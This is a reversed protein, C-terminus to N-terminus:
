LDISNALSLYLHRYTGLPRSVVRRCCTSICESNNSIFTPYFPSWAPGNLPGTSCESPFSLSLTIAIRLNRHPLGRRQWNLVSPNTGILLYQIYRDCVPSIPGTLRTAHQRCINSKRWQKMLQRSLSVPYLCVSRNAPTSHIKDPAMKRLLLSKIWSQRHSM